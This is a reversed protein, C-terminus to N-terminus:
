LSHKVAMIKLVDAVDEAIDSIKEINYIFEKLQLKQALSLRPNEYVRKKLQFAQNDVIHEYTHARETMASVDTGDFFARTGTILSDVCALDSQVMESIDKALNSPFQPNEVSVILLNSQYKNIIKDCGELLILIDSRMDPLIMYQYLDNEVERRYSDNQAELDSVQDRLATFDATVGTQVFIDMSRAYLVGAEIINLLFCAIKEELVHTRKFLNKSLLTSQNKM